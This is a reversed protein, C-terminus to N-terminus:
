KKGRRMFTMPRWGGRKKQNARAMMYAVIRGRGGTDPGRQIWEGLVDGVGPLEEGGARNGEDRICELAGPWTQLDGLLGDQRQLTESMLGEICELAARRKKDPAPTAALPLLHRVFSHALGSVSERARAEFAARAVDEEIEIELRM